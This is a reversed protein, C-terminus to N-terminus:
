IGELAALAALRFFLRRYSQPEPLIHSVLSIPGDIQRRGIEPAYPEVGRQRAVDRGIWEAQWEQPVIELQSEVMGDGDDDALVAGPFRCQEFPDGREGSVVFRAAPFAVHGGVM